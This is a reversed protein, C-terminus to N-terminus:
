FDSFLAKVLAQDALDMRMPTFRPDACLQAFRAEKLRLDYYPTFNDVGIVDAGHRLLRLAVHFGIFGAAGTVVVPGARALKLVAGDSWARATDVLKHVTSNAEVM